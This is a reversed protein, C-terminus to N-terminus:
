LSTVPCERDVFHIDGAEAGSVVLLSRLEELAKRLPDYHVANTGEGLFVALQTDKELCTTRSDRHNFSWCIIENGSAYVVVGPSLPMDQQRGSLPIFRDAKPDAFRITIQMDPLRNLDYGGIAALHRASVACYINVIPLPTRISEGKLLRRALQEPSSKFTSPKLGSRKFTDRWTAIRPDSVISEVSLGQDFLQTRASELHVASTMLRESALALGDVLFGGVRLGPFSNLVSQEIELSPERM